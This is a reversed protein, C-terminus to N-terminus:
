NWHMGEFAERAPNLHYINFTLGDEPSEMYWLELHNMKENVEILYRKIYIMQKGPWVTTNLFKYNSSCNNINAIIEVIKKDPILEKQVPKYSIGQGKIKGTEYKIVLFSIILQIDEYKLLMRARIDARKNYADFENIIEIIEISNLSGFQKTLSNLEEQYNRNLYEDLLTYNGSTMHTIVNDFLQIDEESGSTVTHTGRHIIKGEKYQLELQFTKRGKDYKIYETTDGELNLRVFDGDMKGNNFDIIVKDNESNCIYQGTYPKNSGIKYYTNYEKQWGSERELSVNNNHDLKQNSCSIILLLIFTSLIFRM